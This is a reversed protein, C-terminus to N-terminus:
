LNEYASDNLTKKSRVIFLDGKIKKVIYKELIAMKLM